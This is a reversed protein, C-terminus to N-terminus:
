QKVKRNVEFILSIIDNSYGDSTKYERYGKSCAYGVIFDQGNIPYIGSGQQGNQMDLIERPFGIREGVKWPSHESAGVINGSRDVFVGHRKYSSDVLVDDLMAQFQPGSDFVLGIGGVVKEKNRVAANYVYTSQGNYYPNKHFASVCYQQSDALSLTGKWNSLDSLTQNRWPHFAENSVAIIRGSTDFLYIGTYVTYLSNIYALLEQVAHVQQKPKDPASLFDIFSSTLAWWRCDNAREYLNRDFIDVSQAAQFELAEYRTTLATDMLRNVSSSFINQMQRGIKRIEELIPIFEDADSRAAAIRGNLVVLDLDDTVIRARSRIDSLVPSFGKWHSSGNSASPQKENENKGNSLPLLACGIWGLGLYGQYGHTKAFSALYRQSNHTIIQHENGLKFQHSVAFLDAHSSVLVKGKSDLLCYVGDNGDSMEEFLSTMEDHLKFSLCLVGVNKNTKPSKVPALFLSSITKNPMLTSYRCIEWYDHRGTLVQEVIPDSYTTLEGRGSMTVRANANVDLLLIDDYVSYKAAYEQLRQRMALAAELTLNDSELAHVVETDTALFGVDATREFLNRNPINVLTQAIRVNKLYCQELQESLLNDILTAQLEAFESKTELMNGLLSQPVNLSNIKGVLSVKDWWTNLSELHTQYKFISSFFGFFDHKNDALLSDTPNLNIDM